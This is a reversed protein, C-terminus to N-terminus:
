ERVPLGAIAAGWRDDFETVEDEGEFISLRRRVEALLDRYNLAIEWIDESRTVLENLDALLRRTQSYSFYNTALSRLLAAMYRDTTKSRGVVQLASMLSSFPMGLDDSFFSGDGIIESLFEILRQDPELVLKWYALSEVFIRRTRGMESSAFIAFLWDNAIFYVREDRPLRSKLTLWLSEWNAYGYYQPDSLLSILEEDDINAEVSLSKPPAPRSKANIRKWISDNSQFLAMEGQIWLNRQEETEFYTKAVLEWNEYQQALTCVVIRDLQMKLLPADAFLNSRFENLDYLEDVGGFFIRGTPFRMALVGGQGVDAELSRSEGVVDFEECHYYPFFDEIQYFEDMSQVYPTNMGKRTFIPVLLTPRDPALDLYGSLRYV